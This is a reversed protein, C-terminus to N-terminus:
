ENYLKELKGVYGGESRGTTPIKKSMKEVEERNKVCWQLKEGLSENDGAEFTFGNEGEEILEAIGEIRSALVPVGFSLSEFIVTPSNEYCLSPVITIDTKSFLGPLEDRGVRGHVVINEGGEALDKVDGLASGDGVVHLECNANTKVFQKFIRLLFLIGKHEEIQGLYLFSFLDNEGKGKGREGKGESFTMPNRVVVFKSSAFFGREKYFDLLFQSPSIVVEPSAFLKKMIWTYVRTPWGTYRWSNEEKKLIIGSPEVLQVDHVTHIHRIDLSRITRPILFSLGMLNHTHVIDPKEWTLIKKVESSVSFNFTDVIHWLFRSLFDHKHAETYFFTNKPKIRYIKLDDSEEVGPDDPTSTILVVSNGAAMLGEVTKRVVQEAGGRAYPPYLNNIICIKM